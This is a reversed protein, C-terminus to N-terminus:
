VHTLASFMWACNRIKADLKGLVNLFQVFLQLKETRLLNQVWDFSCCCYVIGEVQLCLYFHGQAHWSPMHPPLPGSMRLRSVLPVHPWSWARRAKDWYFTGWYKSFLLSLLARRPMKSLLYISQGQVSKLFEKTKWGMTTAFVVLIELLIACSPPFRVDQPCVGVDHFVLKGCTLRLSLPIEGDM